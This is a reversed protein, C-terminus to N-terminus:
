AAVRFRSLGDGDRFVEVRAPFVDRLEPLHSIVLIKDFDARVRGIVDILAALGEEDQTGFGEDVVLFRLPVGARRALLRSLGLRLAFNARFAEGGSFSDYPRAVGDDILTVDLTEALGGTKKERQTEVTLAMRGETLSALVASAEVELEALARETMLAPIGDPGFAEALYLDLALERAAPAVAGRAEDRAAEAEQLQGVAARAAGQEEAARRLARAAGEEEALAAELERATAAFAPELEAAAAVAERLEAIEAAYREADGAARERSALVAPRREEARALEQRRGDAEALEDRRGRARALEGADFAAAAVAGEAEALAAREEGQLFDGELERQAAERGARAADRDEEVARLKDRARRAAELEFKAARLGELKEELAERAPPDYALAALTKEADALARAEPGARLVRRAAEAAALAARALEHEERERQLSALREQARAAGAEAEARRRQIDSGRARGERLASWKERLAAADDEMQQAASEERGIEAAVHARAAGRSGADFERGCTPCRAADDAVGALQARLTETRKAALAAERDLAALRASLAAEEQAAAELRALEEYCADRERRGREREARAEAERTELDQYKILAREAEDRRARAGAEKQAFAARAAALQRERERYEYETKKLRAAEAELATLERATEGLAAIRAVDGRLGAATAELIAERERAAAFEAEAKRRRGAAREELEDRRSAAEERQAAKAELAAVLGRAEDLARGAALIADRRALVEDWAALEGAAEAERARAAALEAEAGRWRSRKEAAAALLAAEEAERRRLATAARGAAAAKKEADRYGEAAARARERAPALQAAEAALAAARGEARAVRDRGERAAQKAAEGVLLLRDLGLLSYLLQKRERANLTKTFYAAEGQKLYVSAVFTEYPLKLLEALAESVATVGEAETTERGPDAERFLTAAHKSGRRAYSRHVRYAAGGVRFRFSVAAAAAGRRVVDDNAVGRAKSWLAWTIADFLASKGAGNPGHLCAVDLGEFSLTQPAPGYSM